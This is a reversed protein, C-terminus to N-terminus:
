FLQAWSRTRTPVLIASGRLANEIACRSYLVTQNGTFTSGGDGITANRAMITGFIDANGNGKNIDDKVIVIGYFEFGGNIQLNGEVLLIGQGRGNGNLHLDGPSYIIPYYNHCPVVSGARYPEGWNTENVTGDPNLTKCKTNDGTVTTPQVDIRNSRNLMTSLTIDANRALSNWTESGYRVYTLSDAAALSRSISPFGTIAGPKATVKATPSVNVGATDRMNPVNACDWGTPTTNVGSILSSGQVELDGAVVVAGGTSVTPYAIRVLMNTNRVARTGPNVVSAVGTSVVWFTTPTLRTVKIFASDGQRVIIRSSDVAGVPFTTSLASPLNRSRDWNSIETNLGYEAVSFARQEILTNRGVRFEQTSAFFAGAILSGIVVIAMIAVALAFGQRRHDIRM